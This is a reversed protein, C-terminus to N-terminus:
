ICGSAEEKLPPTRLVSSDIRAFMTGGRRHSQAARKRLTRESERFRSACSTTGSRGCSNMTPVTVCPSSISRATCPLTDVYICGLRNEDRDQQITPELVFAIGRGQRLLEKLVIFSDVEIVERFDYLSIGSRSLHRQVLTRIGCGTELVILPQKLLTGWSCGYLQESLEPSAAAIINERCLETSDVLMDPLEGEM